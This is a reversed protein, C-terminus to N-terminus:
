DEVIHEEIRKNPLKIKSYYPSHETSKAYALAKKHDAFIVDVFEIDDLGRGYVVWVSTRKETKM